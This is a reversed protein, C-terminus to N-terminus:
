RNPTPVRMVTGDESRDLRMASIAQQLRRLDVPKECRLVARFSPPLASADYGTTFVFPIGRTQLLEAAPFVMEGGLNVDVVACDIRAEARILDIAHQVTGVPGLVTAGADRLADALEDALLFEDEIVLVRCGHLPADVM